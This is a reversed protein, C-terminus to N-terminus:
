STFRQKTAEAIEKHLKQMLAEKAKAARAQAEAAVFGMLASLQEDTPEHAIDNLDFAQMSM